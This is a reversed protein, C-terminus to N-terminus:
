LFQKIHYEINILLCDAVKFEESILIIAIGNIRDEVSCDRNPSLICEIFHEIIRDRIKVKKLGPFFFNIEKKEM